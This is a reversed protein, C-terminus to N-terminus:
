QVERFNNNKKDYAKHNSKNQDSNSCWEYKFPKMNIAYHVNMHDKLLNTSVFYKGAFKVNSSRRMM